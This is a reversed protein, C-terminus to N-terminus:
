FTSFDDKMRNAHFEFNNAIDRLARAFNYYGAMETDEAKKKYENRKNIYATGKEDWTVIGVSNFAENKYGNVVVDNENLIEAVTKDIWFDSKDKPSYFLVKGFCYLGVELRDKEECVKQMDKYWRKLEKSDIYGDDTTGPVLKWMHLVRHANMSINPDINRNDKNKSYEKYALELIESYRNADTSITKEITIPRYDGYTLLPLFKWEVFFLRNKDANNNQLDKIAECIDYKNIYKKIKELCTLIINNDYKINNHLSFRYMWLVREYRKVKMLKIISYNLSEKDNIFRIDVQKWYQKWKNGLHKDVMKFTSLNYPLMLIFKIKAKPSLDNILHEHYIKKSRNYKNYVYGQAFTVLKKQKDLNSIIETKEDKNSIKLESTIMGLSFPDEVIKSLDIIPKIGNKEYLKNINNFRIEYIKQEEDDYSEYDEILESTDKKFLRSIVYLNNQPKLYSIVENLKEVMENKIEIKIEKRKKIWYILSELKDWLKYKSIDSKKLIKPTKLFNCIKDFNHKSVTDLLDILDIIRKNDTKCYELMLDLYSDIQNYYEENTISIDEKPVNIYKPKYTPIAYTIEGPMLKKLLQWGISIDKKIINEAIALRFMLPAFTNPRWPLIINAIHEIATEDYKAIESLIMCASVCYDANWAILELSWYIPISYNYTTINVENEFLIKKEKDNLLYQNLQDLYELPAAEAFYPLLQNLSAWICWDSRELIARITLIPFNLAAVKCNEFSKKLYEIIVLTESVGERIENSYKTVKNYINNMARKKSPLDLKPNKERLIKIIIKSFNKFDEEYFDLAYSEIYKIRNNITWIGNRFIFNTEKKAINRFKEIFKNYNMRSYKEIIEKDHSNKENWKGFLLATKIVKNDIANENNFFYQNDNEVLFKKKLNDFEYIRRRTPEKLVDKISGIRIWAAPAFSNQECVQKITYLNNDDTDVKSTEIEYIRDDNDKSILIYGYSFEKGQFTHKYIGTEIKPTPYIRKAVDQFFHDDLMDKEEIGIRDKKNSVGCIIYKNRGFSQESNLFACLDNTLGALESKEYARAKYDLWANETPLENLIKNLEMKIEEDM